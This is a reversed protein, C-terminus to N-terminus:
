VEEAKLGDAMCVFIGSRLSACDGQAAPNQKANFLLALTLVASKACKLKV